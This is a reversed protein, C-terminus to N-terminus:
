WADLRRDKNEGPMNAEIPSTNGAWPDVRCMEIQASEAALSRPVRRKALGRRGDKIPLCSDRGFIM